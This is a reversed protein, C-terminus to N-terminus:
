RMRNEYDDEITKSNIIRRIINIDELLHDTRLPRWTAFRGFSFINHQDTLWMIYKLREKNNPPIIKGNKINSLGSFEVWFSKPIGFSEPILYEYEARIEFELAIKSEIIIIDDQITIRYINFKPDAYSITQHMGTPKKLTLRKVSIQKSEFKLNIGNHPPAIKSYMIDMPITSICYDYKLEDTFNKGLYIKGDKISHVEQNIIKDNPIPIGGDILYRTSDGPKLVSRKGVAGYLKISYINNIKINPTNIFNGKYWIGKTINIKKKKAGILDAVAPNRLRMLADHVPMKGGVQPTKEVISASESKFSHYAICGAIGSGLIVIKKSM